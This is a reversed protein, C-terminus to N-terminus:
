SLEEDESVINGDANFSLDLSGDELEASDAEKANSIVDKPIELSEDGNIVDFAMEIHSKVTSENVPVVEMNEKNSTEVKKSELYEGDIVINNLSRDKYFSIVINVPKATKEQSAEEGYFDKLVNEDATMSVSYGDDTNELTVSENNANDKIYKLIKNQAESFEKYGSDDDGASKTWGNNFGFISANIYSTDNANDLWMELSIEMSMNDSDDSSGIIVKGDSIHVIDDKQEVVMDMKQSNMNDFLGLGSSEESSSSGNSEQSSEVHYTTKQFKSNDIEPIGEGGNADFVLKYSKNQRAQLSQELFEKMMAINNAENITDAIAYTPASSFVM